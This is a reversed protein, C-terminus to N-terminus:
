EIVEDARLLFPEPVKLGLAKATKLNITFEFKTPQLVPLDTPKEGKLIRGIYRGAARIQDLVDGSYSMLGGARVWDRTFYSAPIAYSAALAVIQEIRTAFYPDDGVLLAASRQQGITAFAMDIDKESGADLVLIQQGASRAGEQVDRLRTQLNPNNPNLLVAIVGATPLLERLLELRKPLLEGTFFTVGTLNGTPRSLSTVLGDRIPDGGIAFVIPITTTAARAAVAAAINHAFIIAVPRRVLESALSPLRDYEESNRLEVAANRGEVYGLDSLGQRFALLHDATAPGGARLYGIVPMAPQQGRAALPWAAATGGLLTIFQRRRV